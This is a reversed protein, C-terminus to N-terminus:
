SFTSRFVLINLFHEFFLKTTMKELFDNKRSSKGGSAADGRLGVFRALIQRALNKQCYKQGAMQKEPRTGAMEKQRAGAM